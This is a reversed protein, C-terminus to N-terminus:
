HIRLPQVHREEVKNEGCACADNKGATVSSTTTDAAVSTSAQAEDPRVGLHALARGITGKYDLMLEEYAVRLM